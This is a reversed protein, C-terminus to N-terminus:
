DFTVGTHAIFASYTDFRIIPDAGTYDRIHDLVAQRSRRWMPPVIELMPGYLAPSRYYVISQTPGAVKIEYDREYGAAEIRRTAEDYDHVWFGLHQLGERGSALFDLYPSSANNTQEILEIQVDGMYAFALRLEVSVGQGRHYTVGVPQSVGREMFIFPGVGFVDIWHKMAAEIDRVVFGLQTAPGLIPKLGAQIDNGANVM